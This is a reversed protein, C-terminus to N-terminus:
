QDDEGGLGHQDGGPSSPHRKRQDPALILARDSGSGEAAERHIGGRRRDGVHLRQGAAVARISRSPLVSGFITRPQRMTLPVSSVVAM